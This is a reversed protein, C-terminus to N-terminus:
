AASTGRLPRTMTPSFVIKRAGWDGEPAAAATVCSSSQSSAVRSAARTDPRGTEITM